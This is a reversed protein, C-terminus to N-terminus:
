SDERVTSLDPDSKLAEVFLDFADRHIVGQELQLQKLALKLTKMDLKDKYEENLEELDSKLLAIENEINTRRTLYEQVTVRLSKIEDPQLNAVNYTPPSKKSKM